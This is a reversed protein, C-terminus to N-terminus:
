EKRDGLPVEDVPVTTVVVAKGPLVSVPPPVNEAVTKGIKSLLENRSSVKSSESYESYQRIVKLLETIENYVSLLKLAKILSLVILLLLLVITLISLARDFYMHHIFAQEQEVTFALTVM